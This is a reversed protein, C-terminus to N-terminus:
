EEEREEDWIAKRNQLDDDWISNDWINKKADIPDDDEYDGGIGPSAVILLSESLAAAMWTEPKVYDKKM